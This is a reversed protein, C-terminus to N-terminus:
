YSIGWRSAALQKIARQLLRIIREIGHHPLGIVLPGAFGDLL